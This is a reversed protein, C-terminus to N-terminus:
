AAGSVRPVTLPLFRSFISTGAHIREGRMMRFTSLKCVKCLCLRCVFDACTGYIIGVSGVKYLFLSYLGPFNRPCRQCKGAGLLSFRHPHAGLPCLPLVPPLMGEMLVLHCRLMEHQISGLSQLQVPLLVQRQAACRARGMVVTEQGRTPHPGLM